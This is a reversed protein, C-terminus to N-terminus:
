PSPRLAIHVVAADRAPVVVELEGADVWKGSEFIQARQGPKLELNRLTVAVAADRENFLLVLREDGKRLVLLNPYKIQASEALKDAREGDIFLEEYASIIRTAEGIWYPMGAVCEKSNQLDIGGGFAAVVRLVQSKWSKADVFGDPSMVTPARNDGLVLFSFRQGMVQSMGQTKRLSDAYPHDMRGQTDSNAPDNGTSGAFYLDMNGKLRSEFPTFGGWTFSMLKMGLANDVEKVLKHVEMVQWVHFDDWQTRYNKFIADDSLDATAPLKAFQRFGEKCRDCFCFSDSGDPKVWSHSEYDLLHIEANPTLKQLDAIVMSVLERFKERSEGLMFTPCYMNRTKADWKVSDKFWRAQAAPTAAVYDLLPPNTLRYTGGQTQPGLLPFQSGDSLMIRIGHAQYLRGVARWYDGFAKGWNDFISFGAFNFGMRAERRVVAELHDSALMSGFPLMSAYQSIMIRKPQRGNIPPLITVPIRQELETVNGQAQRRYYFITKEGTFKEDLLLPIYTYSTGAAPIQNAAFRMRYSRYIAGNRKVNEEVIQQPCVNERGWVPVSNDPNLGQKGFLTFAEPVELVFEYDSVASPAPPYLMLGLHDFSGRSFGWERTKPWICTDPGYHTDNWLLTQRFCASSAKSDATWLFGDATAALPWAKDNFAATQWGAAADAGVRWRGATENQGAVSIQIGPKEGSSQAQIALTTLGEKIKMTARNEKLQIAAGNVFLTATADRARLEVTLEREPAQEFPEIGPNESQTFSFSADDLVAQAGAGTLVLALSASKVKPNSPRYAVSLKKWADTLQLGSQDQMFDTSLFNSAGYQTANLRLTGSGRAWVSLRYVAGTKVVIPPASIIRAEPADGFLTMKLAREGTRAVRDRIIQGGSLNGWGSFSVEDFAQEFGGNKLLEVPANPDISFSADDLYAVEGNLVVAFNVRRVKENTPKYVRRLEQWQETLKLGPQDHFFDTGIFNAADYQYMNLTLTGRGKAWISLLYTGGATVVGTDSASYLRAEQGVVAELRAGRKGTRAEEASELKGAQRVWKVPAGLKTADGHANTASPPVLHIEEFGPNALLNKTLAEGSVAAPPTQANLTMETMWCLFMVVCMGIMSDLKSRM